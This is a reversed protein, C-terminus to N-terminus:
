GIGIIGETRVTWYLLCGAKMGSTPEMNQIERRKTGEKREREKEGWRREEMKWGKRKRKIM